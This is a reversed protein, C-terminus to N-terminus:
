EIGPNEIVYTETVKFWMDSPKSISELREYALSKAKVSNEAQISMYITGEIVVEYKEM